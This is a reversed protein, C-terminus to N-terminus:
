IKEYYKFFNELDDSCHSGEIEILKIGFEKSTKLAQDFKILSDTRSHLLLINDKKAITKLLDINSYDNRCFSGLLTFIGSAVEDINRFISHLIVLKPSEDLQSLLSLTPFGGLSQGWLIIDSAEYNLDYRAFNWVSIISDSITESTPIGKSSGYGPYDYFLVSGKSLMFNQMEYTGRNININGFNGHSFIFLLNSKENKIFEYNIRNEILSNRASPSTKIPINVVMDIIDKRMITFLIGVTLVIALIIASFIKLIINM